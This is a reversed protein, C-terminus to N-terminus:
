YFNIKLNERRNVSNRGKSVLIQGCNDTGGTGEVDLEVLKPFYAISIEERIKESLNKCNNIILVELNECDYRLSNISDCDSFDIRRFFIMKLTKSHQELASIIIKTCKGGKMTFSTLCKQSSILQAIRIDWSWYSGMITMDVILVKVNRVYESLLKSCEESIIKRVDLRLKRVSSILMRTIPDQLILWLEHHMNDLYYRRDLYLQQLTKCHRALINLLGRLLANYPISIPQPCEHLCWSFIASTFEQLNLVRLFSPYCFTMLTKHPINIFPVGKTSLEKREESTFFCMYTNIVSASQIINSWLIPMAIKCWRKNIQICTYLDELMEARNISGDEYIIKFVHRLIESPLKEIM